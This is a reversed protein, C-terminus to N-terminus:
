KEFFDFFILLNRLINIVIIIERFQTYISPENHDNKFRFVRYNGHNTIQMSM